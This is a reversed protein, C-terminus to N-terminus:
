MYCVLMVQLAQMTLKTHPHSQNVYFDYQKAPAGLFVTDDLVLTIRTINEMIITLQRVPLKLVM